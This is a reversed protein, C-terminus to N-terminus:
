VRPEYRESHHVMGTKTSLCSRCLVFTQQSRFADGQLLASQFTFLLNATCSSSLRHVPAASVSQFSVNRCRIKEYQASIAFSRTQVLFYGEFPFVHLVFLLLHLRSPAPSEQKLILPGCTQILLRYGLRELPYARIGTRPAMCERSASM